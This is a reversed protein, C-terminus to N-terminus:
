TYYQKNNDEGSSLFRVIDKLLNIEEDDLSCFRNKEVDAIIKKLLLIENKRLKLRIDVDGALFIGGEKGAIATIPYMRSLAYVDRFVTRESVELKEALISASTKGRMLLIRILKERRETANLVTVGKRVDTYCGVKVFGTLTPFFLNHKHIELCVKIYIRRM